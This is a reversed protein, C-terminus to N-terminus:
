EKKQKKQPMTGRWRLSCVRWIDDSNLSCCLHSMTRGQKAVLVDRHSPLPGNLIRLM